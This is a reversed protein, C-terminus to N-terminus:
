SGSGSAGALVGFLVLLIIVIAQWKVRAFMMRNQALYLEHAAEGDKQIANGTRAFFILGRVLSYVVMGVAALILLLLLWSM